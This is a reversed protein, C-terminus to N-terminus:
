SDLGLKKIRMELQALTASTKSPVIVDGDDDDDDDDDDDGDSIANDDDDDDDDDDEEPYGGLKLVIKNVIENWDMMGGMGIDGYSGVVKEVPKLVEIWKMEERIVKLHARTAPHNYAYSVMAPAILFPYQTNWARVVSTLLNDCLGLAIKGLTNASLPAIVLIDAWRRLEIHVVPDSRGKWTEWEDKDRWIRIHSPIEGRSVFNEAAKTLIIQISIKETGYIENLKNIILRIKGTSSSGTAALLIHLKGDDQPLRPDGATNSTNTMSAITNNSMNTTITPRPDDPKTSTAASTSAAGSSNLSPISVNSANGVIFSTSSAGNSGKLQASPTTVGSSGASASTSGKLVETDGRNNMGFYDTALPSSSLTQDLTANGGRGEHAIHDLFHTQVRKLEVVEPNDRLTTGKQATLSPEEKTAAKDVGITAGDAFTSESKIVPAPEIISKSSDTKNLLSSPPKTENSNSSVVVKGRVKSIKENLKEAQSAAAKKAEEESQQSVPPIQISNSSSSSSYAPPKQPQFQEQSFQTTQNLTTQPSESISSILPEASSLAPASVTSQPGSQPSNLISPPKKENEDPTSVVFFNPSPM